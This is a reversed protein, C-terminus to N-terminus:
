RCWIAVTPAQGAGVMIVGPCRASGGGVGCADAIRLWAQRPRLAVAEASVLATAHWLRLPRPRKIFVQAM